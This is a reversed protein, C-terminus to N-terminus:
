REGRKRAQALIVDVCEGPLNGVWDFDALTIGHPAAAALLDDLLEAADARQKDTIPPGGREIVAIRDATTRTDKPM